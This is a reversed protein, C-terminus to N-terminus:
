GHPRRRWSDEFNKLTVTLAEHRSVRDDVDAVAQAWREVEAAASKVRETAAKWAGTPRGTGTFYRLYEADIRDILLAEDGAPAVDTEGGRRGTRPLPRRVSLNVAHTSASQLVRQADWLKTDLTEALM